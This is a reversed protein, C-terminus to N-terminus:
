WHKVCLSSPNKAFRDTNIFYKNKCQAKQWRWVWPNIEEEKRKLGLYWSSREWLPPQWQKSSLVLKIVAGCSVPLLAKTGLYFLRLLFDELGNNTAKPLELPLVDETDTCSKAALCKVGVSLPLHASLRLWRALTVCPSAALAWFNIWPEVEPRWHSDLFTSEAAFCWCQSLLETGGSHTCLHPPAEQGSNWSDGTGSGHWPRSGGGWSSRRRWLCCVPKDQDKRRMVKVESTEAEPDCDQCHSESVEQWDCGGMLEKRECTDEFM